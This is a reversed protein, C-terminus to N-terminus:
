EKKLNFTDNKYDIITEKKDGYVVGVIESVGIEQRVVRCITRDNKKEEETLSNWLEEAAQLAAKKTRIPCKELTHATDRFEVIFADKIGSSRM